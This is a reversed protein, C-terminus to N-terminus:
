RFNRSRDAVVKHMLYEDADMPCEGFQPWHVRTTAFAVRRKPRWVRAWAAPDFTYGLECEFTLAVGARENAGSGIRQSDRARTSRIRRTKLALRAASRPHRARGRHL